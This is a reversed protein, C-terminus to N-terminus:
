QEVWQQEVQNNEGPATQVTIQERTANGLM